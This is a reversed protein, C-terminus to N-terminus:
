QKKPSNKNIMEDINSLNATFESAWSRTERQVLQEVELTFRKMAELKKLNKSPDDQLELLIWDHYFEKLSLELKLQTEMFRMWGTSLGFYKDFLVIGGAAAILVYGMRLFDIRGAGPSVDGTFLGPAILPCLIGAGFLLLTFIRTGQSWIRKHPRKKAYWSIQDKANDVVWDYIADIAAPPDKEDMKPFLKFVKTERASLRGFSDKQEM